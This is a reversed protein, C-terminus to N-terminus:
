LPVFYQRHRTMIPRYGEQQRERPLSLAHRVAVTKQGVRQRPLGGRDFGGHGADIVVTKSRTPTTAQTFQPLLVLIIALKSVGIAWKRFFGHLLSQPRRKCDASPRQRNAIM